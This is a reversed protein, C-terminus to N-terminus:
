INKMSAKARWWSLYYMRRKYVIWGYMYTICENKCIVINQRRGLFEVKCTNAELVGIRLAVDRKECYEGGIPIMGKTQLKFIDWALLLSCSTSKEHNFQVLINLCFCQYELYPFDGHPSLLVGTVDNRHWFLSLVRLREFQLLLFM